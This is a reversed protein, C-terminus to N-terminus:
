EKLYNLLSKALRSFVPNESQESSAQLGGPSLTNVESIIRMGEDDVLTDLGYMFVGEKRLIPDIYKVIEKEREDPKAFQSVGGQSVNCLWNGASPLRLSTALIEGGAVVIRKDGKTVNKLFKMGLYVQPQAKYQTLFEEFSIDVGEWSVTGGEIKVLGKGGYEELPKLVCSFRNKFTLLDGEDEILAMPVVFRELNLLFAKNSTEEIGTPSNVIQGEKFNAKLMPFFGKPIPRPLRLLIADYDEVSVKSSRAEFATDQPYYFDRHGPIAFIEHSFEGQFFEFNGPHARSAVDVARVDTQKSLARVIGYMSNSSSHAKHDTLVLIKM